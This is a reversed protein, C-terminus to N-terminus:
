NLELLRCFFSSSYFVSAWALREVDTCFSCIFLLCVIFVLFSIFVYLQPYPLYNLAVKNVHPWPLGGRGLAEDRVSLSWVEKATLEAQYEAQAGRRARANLLREGSLQAMSLVALQLGSSNFIEIMLKGESYDDGLRYDCAAASLMAEEAAPLKKLRSSPPMDRRFFLLV